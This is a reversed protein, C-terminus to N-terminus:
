AWRSARARSRGAHWGGCGRSSHGDRATYFRRRRHGFFWWAAVLWLWWMALVGTVAFVVAIIVLTVPIAIALALAPRVRALAHTDRPALVRSGPLDAVLADLQGYTRSSLAAELRQELEETHLRGEAAARQLREAVQERDADSARLTARSAM